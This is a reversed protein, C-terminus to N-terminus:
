NPSSKVIGSTEAGNKGSNERGHGGLLAVGQCMMLQTGLKM